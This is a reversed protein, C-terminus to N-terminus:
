GSRVSASTGLVRGASDLGQVAVYPATRIRIATEFNTKPAAALAALTSPTAGGLVRWSAVQTAGNWSVYVTASSGSTARVAPATGPFGYWPFRYARYNSNPGVFHGEYVVKGRNNFETFNSFEGWGVFGDGGPLQEYNGEFNALLQPSHNLGSIWSATMKKLNLSLQIARSHRHVTPPGAGDDFLSILADGNARVRVDHQFAFSANFGMKFSSRKGGLTWIVHGTRHDLKYAAWTNRASIVLNGDRDPEVSNIHFYDFESNGSTPPPLESSSMPIHDLSDWQYLLLGTRIDIEQAIADMVLQHRSAHVSRADRYVPYYATILATGQPTITFEHLDASLGNAAKVVAIERYATDNIVDEGVGLGASLFGQWWTLVPRGQYTQVRVDTALDQKPLPKFWILKGTPDIVMPGKQLPGQQPGLFIDGAATTASQQVTVASPTLDPRSRFSQVDGRTRGANPVPSYRIAPGPNAVTFRFTGSPANVINLRTNVTVREGATFPKRSIFSAGQGDSDAAIIGAHPGSGSGTVVIAGLQGAPLGRFAIQARPAVVQSNPIPFVSVQTAAIASGASLGLLTVLLAAVGLLAARLRPLAPRIDFTLPEGQGDPDFHRASPRARM